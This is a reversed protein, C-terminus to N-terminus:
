AERAITIRYIETDVAGFRYKYTESGRLFDFESRGDEIAKEIAKATLVVGLSLSGFSQPDLGSNYVWIRGDYDFNFLTAAKQGDIEAFLLQLTGEDFAAEAAEHFVARRGENLWDRKEFTSRQLLDLFAAVENSLDDGRTVETINVGAADARRIKRRVERRQKSDLNELYAEFTTPLQIIPCVEHISETLHLGEKEALRPLISRTPSAAPINCLDLKTWAPYEHSCLGHFVATWAEEAFEPLVILDLYDTEEVCGNFHITGDALLYLCAIAALDGNEQRVSLSCLRGDKPKLHRWWAQQYALTQFPTNTIGRSALADWEAALDSFVADDFILKTPLM